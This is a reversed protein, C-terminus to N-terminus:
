PTAAQQRATRYAAHFGNVCTVGAKAKGDDTKTTYFPADGDKLYAKMHISSGFSMGYSYSTQNTNPDTKQSDQAEHGRVKEFRLTIDALQPDDVVKFQGWARLTEEAGKSVGSDKTDNVVAVTKATLVGAPFGQTPVQAFAHGSALSCVFAARVIFRNM